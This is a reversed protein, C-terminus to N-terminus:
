RRRAAERAGRRIATLKKYFERQSNGHLNLPLCIYKILEKEFDWPESHCMWTVTAHEQMWASLRSEGNGFTLRNSSGTKQLRISLTEALLCGLTLRLTSSSANGKYHSRIRNRLKQQSVSKGDSSPRRPSIGAYLLTLDGFRECNAIPVSPPISKFYWAYVGSERPVPCEQNLVEARTWTRLPMLLASAQSRFDASL